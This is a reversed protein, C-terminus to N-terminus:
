NGPLGYAPEWYVDKWSAPRNDLTGIDHMFQGLLETGHPASQYTVLVPNSIIKQVWDIGNENPEYKLYIEAAARQDKNIFDIADQLGEQVAKYVKQNEAQFKQTTFLTTMNTPGTADFSNLVLHTKDSDMLQVSFPLYSAATKIETAGSLLAATADAAPISVTLPDLKFREDWGFTKSAALQLALAQVSVKVANVAIRDDEGFDKISKIAPDTSVVFVPTDCLAMVGKIKQNGSTKDWASLMTTFGAVAFDANSSLVMDTAASGSAMRIPTVTLDNLGEAAARKEIFKQEVAIYVPLYTLGIGHVIRVESTDARAGAGTFLTGAVLVTAAIGSLASLSRM